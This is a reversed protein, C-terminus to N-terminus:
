GSMAALRRELIKGFRFLIGAASSHLLSAGTPADVDPAILIKM